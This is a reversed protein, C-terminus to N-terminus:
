WIRTTGACLRSRQGVACRRPACARDVPTRTPETLTVLLDARDLQPPDNTLELGMSQRRLAARGGRVSLSRCRLAPRARAGADLPQLQSPGAAVCWAGAFRRDTAMVSDVCPARRRVLAGADAFWTLSHGGRRGGQRAQRQHDRRRRRV